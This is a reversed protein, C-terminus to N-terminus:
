DRAVFRRLTEFGAGERVVVPGREGLQIMTSPKGPFQSDAIPEDFIFDCRRALAAAVDRTSTAPPDGSLNASTSALPEGLDFIMRRLAASAPIRIATTGDEAKPLDGQVDKCILTLPIRSSLRVLRRGLPPLEVFRQLMKRDACLVIVPKSETRHKMVNMRAVARPSLARCALGAVTDTNHLIIGDSRLTHLAKERSLAKANAFLLANFSAFFILGSQLEWPCDFMMFVTMCLVFVAYVWNRRRIASWAPLALSALMVLGGFIGLALTTQLFQNHAHRDPKALRPEDTQMGRFLADEVDGTGVGALPHKRIQRVAERWVAQRIEVSTGKGTAVTEQGIAASLRLWTYRFLDPWLIVIMAICVPIAAAAVYARQRLLTIGAVVTLLGLTLLGARSALLIINLGLWLWVALMLALYVRNRRRHQTYYLYGLALGALGVYMAFISPHLNVESALFVYTLSKWDAIPTRLISIFAYCTIVLTSGVFGWLCWRMIRASLDATAVMLPFLLLPLKLVLDTRANTTNSSYVAGILYLVYILGFLIFLPQRRLAWTKERWRGGSLWVAALLAVIYSVFPFRDFFQIFPISTCLLVILFEFSRQQWARFSSRAPPSIGSRDAAPNTM